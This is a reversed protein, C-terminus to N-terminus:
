YQKKLLTAVFDNVQACGTDKSTMTQHESVQKYIFIFWMVSQYTVYEM